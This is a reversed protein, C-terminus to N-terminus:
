QKLALILQRIAIMWPTCLNPYDVNLSRQVNEAEDYDEAELLRALKHMGNKVKDNLQGDSWKQSFIAIRKKIELVKKAELKENMMVQDLLQIVDNLEVAGSLDQNESQLEPSSAPKAIPAVPCSMSPPPPPPLGTLPTPKAGADNLTSCPVGTNETQANSTSPFGIRKSLKTGGTTM